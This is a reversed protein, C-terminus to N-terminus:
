KVIFLRTKDYRTANVQSAALRKNEQELHNMRDVFATVDGLLREGVSEM